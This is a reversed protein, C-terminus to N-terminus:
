TGILKIFLVQGTKDCDDNIFLFRSKGIPNLGQPLILVQCRQWVELIINRLKGSGILSPTVLIGTHINIKFIKIGQLSNKVHSIPFSATIRPNVEILKDKIYDIGFLGVHEFEPIQSIQSFFDHALDQNLREHERSWSGGVFRGNDDINQEYVQLLEFSRDPYFYALAGYVPGKIFEQIQYPFSLQGKEALGDIYQEMEQPSLGEGEGRYVGV